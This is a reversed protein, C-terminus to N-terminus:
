SSSAEATSPPHQSHVQSQVTSTPQSSSAEPTIKSKKRRPQTSSGGSTTPASLLEQGAEKARRVLNERGKCRQDVLNSM